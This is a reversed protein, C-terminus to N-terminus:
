LSEGVLALAERAAGVYDMGGKAIYKAAHALKRRDERLREIEALLDRFDRENQWDPDDTLSPHKALCDLDETHRARIIAVLDTSVPISV